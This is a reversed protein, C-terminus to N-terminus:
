LRFDLLSLHLRIFTQGLAFHEEMHDPCGIHRDSKLIVFIIGVKDHLFIIILFLSFTSLALEFIHELLLLDLCENLDLKNVSLSTLLCYELSLCSFSLKWFPILNKGISEPGFIFHSKGFSFLLLRRDNDIESKKVLKNLLLM